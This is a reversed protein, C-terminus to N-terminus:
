RASIRPRREVRIERGDGLWWDPVATLLHLEDGAEHVLMHRFM